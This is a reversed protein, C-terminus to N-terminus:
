DADSDSGEFAPHADSDEAESAVTFGLSAPTHCMSMPCPAIPDSISQLVPRRSLLAGDLPPLAGCLLPV